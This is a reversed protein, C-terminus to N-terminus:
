GMGLGGHRRKLLEVLDFPGDPPPASNTLKFKPVGAPPRLRKAHNFYTARCGGGREVFARARDEETALSPDAQVQTAVLRPGALWRALLQGRWDMAAEKLEWAMRYIRMSPRAILHLHDGIWDFIEQDWFWSATRTHVELVDPEFHLLHGRDELAAVHVNLTKWCNAIILVQSATTFRRPIEERALIRTSSEWAVAKRRETQCLCKLL